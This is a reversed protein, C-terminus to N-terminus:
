IFATKEKGSVKVQFWFKSKLKDMPDEEPKDQDEKNTIFQMYVDEGFFTTAPDPGPKDNAAAGFKKLAKRQAITKSVV